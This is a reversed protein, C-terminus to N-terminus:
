SSTLSSDEPVVAPDTPRQRTAYQPVPAGDDGTDRVLGFRVRGQKPDPTPATTIDATVQAWTVPTATINYDAGRENNTLTVEGDLYFFENQWMQQTGDPLTIYGKGPEGMWTNAAPGGPKADDMRRFGGSAVHFLRGQLGTWTPMVMGGPRNFFAIEYRVQLYGQGRLTVHEGRHMMVYRGAIWGPQPDLYNGAVATVTGEPRHPLPGPRQGKPPAPDAQDVNSGYVPGAKTTTAPSANASTSSIAAATTRVPAPTGLAAPPGGSQGPLGGVVVIGGVAVAATTAAAVAIKGSVLGSLKGLFAHGAGLTPLAFAIPLPVLALGALLAEAPIQREWCRRCFDCERTHRAFRKRWVAEPTRDWRAAVAALDPCGASLARVVSRATELQAKMRQIRVAAHQPTLELAAALEERTLEGAAELWWLSLLQRDGSDLWRTAETVERRQGDLGLKAITLDVFDAGPDAIELDTLGTVPERRRWRDRVQRMAITVLWSRFREPDRLAPLERVVRLMTEQVVDDVDAHGDLARGVVNYTLPLFEAILEDLARRDGTQAARVRTGTETM